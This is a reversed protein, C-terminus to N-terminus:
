NDSLETRWKVKIEETQTKLRYSKVGTKLIFTNSNEENLFHLAKPHVIVKIHGNEQDLFKLEDEELQLYIPRWCGFFSFGKWLKFNDGM